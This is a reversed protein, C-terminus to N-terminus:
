YSKIKDKIKSDITKAPSTQYFVFPFVTCLAAIGFYISWELSHKAFHANYDGATYVFSSKSGSRATLHQKKRKYKVVLFPERVEGLVLPKVVYSHTVNHYAPIALFNAKTTGNVLKWATKNNTTQDNFTVEKAFKNGVNYITILVTVDKGLILHEPVFEKSIILSSFVSLPLLTLLLYAFIRM